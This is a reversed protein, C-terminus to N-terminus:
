EEEERRGELCVGELDREVSVLRGYELMIRLFALEIDQERLARQQWERGADAINKSIKQGSETLALFRLMEPLEEMGLSVPVFHVWPMLRDDHWEQHMTQKLITSRSGLLRYYRETRGMGDVDFLFRSRWAVSQDDRNGFPMEKAEQECALQTCAEMATFHVDVLGSLNAMKQTYTEWRGSKGRQLLSVDRENNTAVDVFRQRHFQRWNNGDAFGGTDSGSWYLKNTKNEWPPDEAEIYKGSRYGEVYDPSPYLIDQSSSPKGHSFIPVLTDTVKLSFPSSFMGHSVAAKPQLCWDKSQTVNTVFPIGPQDHPILISRSPSNEPCSRVGIQWSSEKGLDMIELEKRTVKADIEADVVKPPCTHILHELRDNPVIVRPEALGNIVFDMDPLIDQYRRLWEFVIENFRALVLTDDTITIEHNKVHLNALPAEDIMKGRARIEKASLGWFPELTHMVTDYNDIIPTKAKVALDFWRDFGPPPPRKYRRQYEAVADPLSNSQSEIMRTFELNAEKVLKEIPHPQNVRFLSGLWLEHMPRHQRSMFGLLLICAVVSAIKRSYAFKHVLRYTQALSVFAVGAVLEIRGSSRPLNFTQLTSAAFTAM